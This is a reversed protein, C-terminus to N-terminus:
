NIIIINENDEEEDEEENEEEMFYEFLDQYLIINFLQYLINLMREDVDININDINNQNKQNKKEIYLKERKTLTINQRCVPCCSKGWNLICKRHVWHACSLPIEKNNLQEMCVPCEDPKELKFKKYHLKCYKFDKYIKNKCKKHKLTTGNCFDKKNKLHESKKYDILDASTLILIDDM